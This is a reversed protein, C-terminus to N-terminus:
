SGGLPGNGRVGRRSHEVRAAIVGEDGEPGHIGGPPAQRRRDYLWAGALVVVLVAIVITWFM